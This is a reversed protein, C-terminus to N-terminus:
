IEYRFSGLKSTWSRSFWNRMFVHPKLKPKFDSLKGGASFVFIETVTTWWDTCEACLMAAKFGGGGNQHTPGHQTQIKYLVLDTNCKIICM